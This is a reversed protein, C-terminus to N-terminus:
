SRAEGLLGARRAIAVAELRSHAELKRIVRQVHNRATNVSIFLHAAIRRTSAGESLMRLVERERDTLSAPGRQAAQSTPMALRAVRQSDLAAVGNRVARIARVLDVVAQDKTVFGACGAGVAARLVADDGHGTLMVLAADPAAQRLRIAVAVGDDGPLRYDLVVVDPDGAEILALAEVGNTAWGAVSIDEHEELTAHLLEAFMRDDEVLLVRTATPRAQLRAATM